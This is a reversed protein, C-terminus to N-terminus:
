AASLVGAHVTVVRTAVAAALARDHTALLASASSL